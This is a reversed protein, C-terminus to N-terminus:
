FYIYTQYTSPDVNYRESYYGDFSENFQSINITGDSNVKEVWVVHGYYGVYMVGVSGARPTSGTPIGAARANDPWQNANGVGGWYPMHGNKQYVKWATYSVCERNYMGWPDVLADKPANMLNRPYGGMNPDGAVAHGGAGTSQLRAAIAAAQERELQAKQSAAQKSLKQYASEKGRTQSILKSKEAEKKALANRAYRQDQAVQDVQKKQKELKAKLEKIKDITDHLTVQVQERNAERDVYEAINSSSALMELPSINDDVYMDAMTQGLVNRNDEIKKENENIQKKLKNQKAITLNLKTQIQAKESSLIALQNEYSNRQRRLKAAETDYGKMQQELAAIKADFEDARASPSVMMPTALLTLISAAIVVTRVVGVSKSVPTTSRLKM